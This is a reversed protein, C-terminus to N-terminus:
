LGQQAKINKMWTGAFVSMDKQLKPSFGKITGGEFEVARQYICLNDQQFETPYYEGDEGRLFVMDPDKMLDGNQEYYHAVSFIHGLNCTGIHEVHVSMFAGSANDIEKHDGPENLDLTLKNMVSKAQKNIKIM